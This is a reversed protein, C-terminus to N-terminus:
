FELISGSRGATVRGGFRGELARVAAEGTCHCPVLRTPSLLDLADLTRGLREEDAYLLHFGGIVARIEPVGSLSRAAELTNILGAHCCGTCVVLGEPGRIWLAQDDEFLDKELGEADRFFPGGSDEFFSDRPISGTLGIGPALEMPSSSFRLRGLPLGDAAARSASPMGISRAPGGPPRSFRTRLAAPHLVCIAHSAAELASALGGSHDYHGHSLVIFDAKDLPLGLRHANEPQAEGQGTDFLIRLGGTEIWLSLGHEPLLGEGAVNDVLITIRVNPTKM